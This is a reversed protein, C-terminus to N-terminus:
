PGLLPEHPRWLTLAGPSGAETFAHFLLFPGKGQPPVGQGLEIGWCVSFRGDEITEVRFGRFFSLPKPLGVKDYVM